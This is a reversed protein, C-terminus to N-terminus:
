SLQGQVKGPLVTPSVRTTPAHVLWGQALSCSLVPGMVERYHPSMPLPSIGRQKMGQWRHLAPSNAGLNGSCSPSHTRYKAQDAYFLQGQIHFSCTLQGQSCSCPLAPGAQQRGHPLELFPSGRGEKEGGLRHHDSFSVQIPDHFFSLHGQGESAAASSHARYRVQGTSYPQGQSYTCSSGARLSCPFRMVQRCIPM